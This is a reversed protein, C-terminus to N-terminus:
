KAWPNATNFPNRQNKLEQQQQFGPPISHMSSDGSAFPLASYASPPAFGPPPKIMTPERSSSGWSRVGLDMDLGLGLGLGIDMENSAPAVSNADTPMWWRNETPVTQDRGSSASLGLWDGLTASALLLTADDDEQSPTSSVSGNSTFSLSPQLGLGPSSTFTRSFNPRFVVDDIEEDADEDSKGKEVDLNIKPHSPQAPQVLHSAHPSAHSARSSVGGDVCGERYVEADDDVEYQFRVEDNTDKFPNDSSPPVAAYIKSGAFVAPPGRSQSVEGSKGSRIRKGSPPASSKDQGVKKGKGGSSSTVLVGEGELMAAPAPAPVSSNRPSRVKKKNLQPQAENKQLEEKEKVRREEGELAERQASPVLWDRVFAKLIRLRVDRAEEDSYLIPIKPVASNGAFFNEYHTALPLFGRLRLHEPLVKTTTKNSGSPGASSVDFINEQELAMIASRMSSRSRNEVRLLETNSHLSDDLSEESLGKLSASSAMLYEDYLSSWEGFVAFPPLLIKRLNKKKDLM